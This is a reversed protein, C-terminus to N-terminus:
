KPRPAEVRLKNVVGKVGSVKKALKEAKARAKETEVTGTLTVVGDKTEVEVTYGKVNPDAFLRRRVQDTIVGDDRKDAVLPATLVLLLLLCLLLRLM